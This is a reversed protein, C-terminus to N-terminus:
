EARRIQVPGLLGSPFLPWTSADFPRYRINLLNADHFTKWTVKRRDLDRIRNAALNTVDIELRNAKTHLTGPPVTLRYPHMFRTGLNRGNLRVRCVHKVQGLDLFLSSAVPTQAPLDFEVVYRATGAFSQGDPNDGATWSELRNLRRPKPLTPGGKLFDLRWPGELTTVVPGPKSWRWPRGETRDREFTRLFISHGPELRIHVEAAGDPTHRLAVVGSRGTMPDLVVASQAPTALRIWDDLPKLAHNVLFYHRGTDHKRRIFKVGPRDVLTERQIGASGLAEDLSGILVRGKGLSIQRLSTSDAAKSSELRPLRALQKELEARRADLRGLGPVDHPLDQTFVVTAGHEALDLLRALTAPPMQRCEPVVVARWSDGGPREIRGDVVKMPELLRDSIYDFGYGRAWLARATEGLLGKLAAKNHVSMNRVGRTWADHIPWYLLVDNDPKGWQLISQCRTVYANLAPAERWLPNRPNMQTSAYFLWGPWAADDPSYVCGHYFIHNVGSLLFLDVECKLEEFTECFHEALWTGTEASVLPRGAVHAASSAFKAILLDRDAGGLHEDFRSVLPDPGGHGFMETEPIDALAYFDLWNAPAGHAQNRTKMGRAHCWDVWQPFVQDIMLDSLTESVDCRVRAVRDADGQGALAPLEDQIRYGRRRAFQAPFDPSWDGDYEFSDHYMARPRAVGPTDFAATFRPLYARMADTCFSNLMSGAGGPAARKVQRGTFRHGLVYVSWHEDPKTWDLTGDPKLLKTLDVHKRRPGFAIIAQVALRPPRLEAPLKGDPPLTLRRVVKMRCGLAPTIQPGGFCWGTGTTLDVGLGRRRGEEVAFTFADLWAPSLFDLYRAEAGKAGYIPVVHIGGLGGEHYRQLERALNERDVANGLWWHYAWPRCENTAKPWDLPGALASSCTLAVLALIVNICTNKM